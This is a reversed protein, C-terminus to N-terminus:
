EHAKTTPRTSPLSFEPRRAQPMDPRVSFRGVGTLATELETRAVWYDRTAMIEDRQSRALQQRADLLQFVGRLMANYELQSLNLIRERRPIVVERLYAVRSRAELLREQASRAESRASVTMAALRQEAQRLMARARTKQAAGRNFIPIPISAAPGTTREGEPEREHHAGVALDDIVAIKSLGLASRAAEIEREAMQIDLRRGVVQSEIEDVTMESAALSPFDDPLRLEAPQGLGLDATLRERAQLEELQAAASDLKVQEYRAQENELDLDSINGASHQRVALETAAEQAKLITQQRALIRRSASSTTTIM